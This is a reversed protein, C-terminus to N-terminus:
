ISAVHLLKFILKGYKCFHLLEFIYNSNYVPITNCNLPLLKTNIWTRFTDNFIMVLKQRWFSTEFTMFKNTIYYQFQFKRYYLSLFFTFQVICLLNEEFKSLM